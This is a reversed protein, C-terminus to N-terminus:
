GSPVAGGVRRRARARRLAILRLRLEACSSSCIAVSTVLAASCTCVCGALPDLRGSRCALKGLVPELGFLAPELDAQRGVEEDHLRLAIQAVRLVGLQAGQEVIATRQHVELAHLFGRGAPATPLLLM